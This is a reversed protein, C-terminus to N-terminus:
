SYAVKRWRASVDFMDNGFKLTARLVEQIYLEYDITGEEFIMLPLYEKWALGDSKGSFKEVDKIDDKADAEARSLTWVRENECNYVGDIDFM